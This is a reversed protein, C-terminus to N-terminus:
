RANIAEDYAARVQRVVSHWDYKLRAFQSCSMTSPLFGPDSLADSIGACMSAPDTGGLVLSNSLEGVVEPLGGVPTVMAPTGAALSEAASLGFGELAVSPLISVDAARYAFPLDADAVFGLLKVHQTLDLATIQQELAQQLRGRGAILCLVDPHRMRIQAIADVLNELGMRGALRRVSLLIPRDLPWGLKQRAERRSTDPAVAFRQTDVGGPIVRVRDPDVKYGKCLIDRFAASLAILRDARRYVAREVQKKFFVGLANGGEQKAEAAWPGHFHVVLPRNQLRRLIPFTYCAFHSVFLESQVLSPNLDFTYRIARWRSLLGQDPSAFALVQGVSEVAVRQTGVVLGSSEVGVSPLSELLDAYYRELGGPQELFWGGGIQACTM